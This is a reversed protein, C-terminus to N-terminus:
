SFLASEEFFFEVGMLALALHGSRVVGDQSTLTNPIPIILNGQPLNEPPFSRALRASNESATTSCINFM